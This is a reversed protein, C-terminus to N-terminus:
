FDQGKLSVSQDINGVAGPLLVAGAGPIVTAQQGRAAEVRQKVFATAGYPNWDTRGSVSRSRVTMRRSPM